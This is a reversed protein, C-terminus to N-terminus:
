TWGASPGAIMKATSRTSTGRRSKKKLPEAEPPQPPAPTEETEAPPANVREATEASSAHGRADADEQPKGKKKGKWQSKWPQRAKGKYGGYDAPPKGYGGGKGWKAVPALDPPEDVLPPMDPPPPLPPPDSPTPGKGRWNLTPHWPAPPPPPPLARCQPSPCGDVVAAVEDVTGEPIGAARLNACMEPGKAHHWKVHVHELALRRKDADASVLSAM